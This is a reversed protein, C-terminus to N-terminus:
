YCAPKVLSKEVFAAASLLSHDKGQAGVVQVAVPLGGYGNGAPISICPARLCSWTRSMIPNGTGQDVLPAEGVAAPVILGDFSNMFKAFLHIGEKWQAKAAEYEEDRIAAVEDLFQYTQQSIVDRLFLREYALSRRSEWKTMLEHCRPLDNFFAPAEIVDPKCGSRLLSEHARELASQSSREQVGCEVTRLFALRPRIELLPAALSARGSLVATTYAADAVSRTFLGLTDFSEALPKVGTRDVTGFSPKYGVVGCFAAPRIISGATQTGLAVTAMGLAVSAASGSSSGGPTHDQNWPNRTKSPSFLAFETSTTKGINIGCASRIEVVCSADTIPRNGLYAYSGYTTPMDATDIIDKVGFVIGALPGKDERRDMLCATALASDAAVHCFAQVRPEHKEIADLHMRVLEYASLTGKRVRDVIESIALDNIGLGDTSNSASRIM